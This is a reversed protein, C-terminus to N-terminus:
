LMRRISDAKQEYVRGLGLAIAEECLALADDFRGEDVAGAIGVDFMRIGPLWEQWARPTDERAFEANQRALVIAEDRREPADTEACAAALLDYAFFKCANPLSQQGSLVRELYKRASAPGYLAAERHGDLLDQLHDVTRKRVPESRRSM